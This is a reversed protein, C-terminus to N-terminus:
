FLKRSPGYSLVVDAPDALNLQARAREDLQDADLHNAGLGAVRREWGAREAEARALEGQVVGLQQERLAYSRLGHEGRTANWGFYGVLSLFLLPPLAAKGRQRLARGFRM